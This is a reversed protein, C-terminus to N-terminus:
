GLLKRYLAELKQVMAEISFSEEIRAIAKQSMNERLQSSRLLDLIKDALVRPNRPEVLFGEVGDRVVEPIGGVGTAVVPRGLAMAELLAVPLGEYISPLVFIDFTTMLSHVDTRFGTFIVNDEIGLRRAKEKLQSDLAGRGVIVFAVKPNATLVTKAAELLDEHGKRPYLHAVNGVILYDRPVGLEGKVDDATASHHIRDVREVDIGNHVTIIEPQKFPRYNALVSARVEDSVAIVLDNMFYTLKNILCSLYRYQELVNHETYVMHKVGALRGAIRGVFGSYPLHIHLLDVQQEKLLRALRFIVRLDAHYTQGLCFVPLGAKELPPVLEDKWPLLYGVQYDFTKRDLYPLALVLLTEAGGRGLGKILWFIKKRDGM